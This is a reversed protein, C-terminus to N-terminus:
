CLRTGADTTAWPLLGCEEPYLPFDAPLALGLTAEARQWDGDGDVPVAPPPILSMLRDLASVM